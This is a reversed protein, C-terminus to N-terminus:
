FAVQDASWFVRASIDCRAEDTLKATAEQFEEGTLPQLSPEIRVDKCVEKLLTATVNRINNHRISIFGGKKCSVAHQLNFKASCECTEPIRSLEWGYRIRILDWFLQKTFSYGEEKLPLTTLWTSADTEQNLDNLRTQKDLMQSRINQLKENNRKLRASRIELKISQIKGDNEYQRTQQIIKSCLGETLKISNEYEIQSIEAFIPLGLGGLKPPLSLLKRDNENCIIGDTISPIFETQIVQDLRQLQNSAGHITRMYYTVKHRFGTIFCSYAAQPQSKAIESLIKIEEIWGDVKTALYEEKYEHSLRLEM